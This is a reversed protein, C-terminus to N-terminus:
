RTPPPTTPPDKKPGYNETLYSTMTAIEEDSAEMGKEVMQDMVAAWKDQSYHKKDWVTSAHCKNCKQQTLDKGKGEPM